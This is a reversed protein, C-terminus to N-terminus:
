KYSEEVMDRWRPNVMNILAIKKERSGAKIQKERTIAAEIDSFFEYWVIKGVNYKATFSKKSLKEQHQFAREFINNTVGTYLVTHRFNTAIYVFYKKGEMFITLAAQFQIAEDGPELGPSFATSKGRL